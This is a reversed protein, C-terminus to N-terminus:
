RELHIIIPEPRDKTDVNRSDNDLPHLRNNFLFLDIDFVLVLLQGIM